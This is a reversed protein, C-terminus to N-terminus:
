NEKPIADIQITIGGKNTFKISNNLLNIFIQKLRNYDTFVLM